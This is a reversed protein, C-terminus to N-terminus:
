LSMSSSLIIKAITIIIPMTHCFVVIFRSAPIFRSKPLIICMCSRLQSFNIMMSIADRFVFFFCIRIILKRSILSVRM